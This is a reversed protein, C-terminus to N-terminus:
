CPKERQANAHSTKGFQLGTEHRNLPLFAAFCIPEQYNQQLSGDDNDEV